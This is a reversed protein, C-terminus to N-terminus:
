AEGHHASLRAAGQHSRYGHDEEQYPFTSLSQDQSRRRNENEDGGDREHGLVPEFAHLRNQMVFLITGCLPPDVCPPESEIQRSIARNEPTTELRECRVKKIDVSWIWLVRLVGVADIELHQPLM